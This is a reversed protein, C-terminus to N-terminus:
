REVYKEKAVELFLEAQEQTKFLEITQGATDHRVVAFMLIPKDKKIKM